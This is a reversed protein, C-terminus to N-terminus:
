KDNKMLTILILDNAKDKYFKIMLEKLYKSSCGADNKAITETIDKLEISRISVIETTFAQTPTEVFVIQGIKYFGKNQRITTFIPWNLKLYEKSFRM